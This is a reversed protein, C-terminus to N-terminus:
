TGKGQSLIVEEQFLEHGRQQTFASFPLTRLCFRRMRYFTEHASFDDKERRRVCLRLAKTTSFLIGVYNILHLYLKQLIPTQLQRIVHPTVNRWDVPLSRLQEPDLFIGRFQSSHFHWGVCCLCSEGLPNWVGGARSVWSRPTRLLALLCSSSISPATTEM